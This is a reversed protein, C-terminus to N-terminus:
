NGELQKIFTQNEISLKSRDVTAAEHLVYGKIASKAGDDKAKGYELKQKAIAQDKGQIYSPSNEYIGREVRQSPPGFLARLGLAIAPTGVLFLIGLAAWTAKQKRTFEM